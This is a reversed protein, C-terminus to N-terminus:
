ILLFLIKNVKREEKQPVPAPKKQEPKKFM